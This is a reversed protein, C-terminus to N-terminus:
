HPKDPKNSVLRDVRTTCLARLRHWLCVTMAQLRQKKNVERAGMLQQFLLLTKRKATHDGITM